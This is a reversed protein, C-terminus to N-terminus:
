ALPILLPVGLLQPQLRETYHYAGFPYGTKSGIAEAAWGVVTVTAVLVATRRAGAGQYVLLVVLAAQLVVSVIVGLILAREGALWQVIPLSIMCVLWAVLLGRAGGRWDPSSLQNRWNIVLSM